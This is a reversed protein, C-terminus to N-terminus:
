ARVVGPTGIRRARKWLRTDFTVFRTTGESSALHIADAFDLGAEYWEVAREIHLPDEPIVNPLGLIGRLATLIAPRKLGYAYRLVWEMELVVTKPVFVQTRRLVQSARKAQVPDDNTVLRVFINTDAAIM